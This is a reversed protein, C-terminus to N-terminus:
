WIRITISNHSLEMLKELVIINPHNAPTFTALLFKYYLYKVHGCLVHGRDLGAKKTMKVTPAQNLVIFIDMM